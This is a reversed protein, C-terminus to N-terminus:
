EQSLKWRSRAWDRFKEGFPEPFAAKLSKDSRYQERLGKPIKEGSGFREYAWYRHPIQHETNAKVRQNYWWWIEYVLVNDGAYRKTMEDGVPGLKTFHYFKLPRDNVFIEGTEKSVIQRQSLNWSAVNCGADRIIKVNDFFCPILNCWKQDVFIGIDLRDHCYDQLRDDWWEAFRRAELDNRVALFGLNYTGYQLSSVENDLIAGVASRPEPDVQHPTLAISANDLVSSIEELSSFIAIDPDFYLVKSVNPQDLIYRLAKGKVATCAEVIDMGFLWSSSDEPFLDELLLARDFVEEVLDFQFGKPELDTIVAWLVWDPHFKKLTEALVRARNLYSYTFSTYVHVSM